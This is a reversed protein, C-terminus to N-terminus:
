SWHVFGKEVRWSMGTLLWLAREMHVYHPHIQRTKAVGQHVATLMTVEQRPTGFVSDALIIASPCSLHWYASTFFFIGQIYKFTIDKYTDLVNSQHHQLPAHIFHSHVPLLISHTKSLSVKDARMGSWRSYPLIEQQAPRQGQLVYEFFFFFFLYHLITNWVKM